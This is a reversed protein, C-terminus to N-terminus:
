QAVEQKKLINLKLLKRVGGGIGCSSCKFLSNNMNFLIKGSCSPCATINHKEAIKKINLCKGWGKPKFTEQIEPSKLGYKERAVKIVEKKESESLCSRGIESCSKIGEDMAIAEWIGGGTHSHYCFYSNTEPYVKFNKGTECGCQPCTELSSSFISTISIDKIDDGEWDEKMPKPKEKEEPIEAKKNYVASHENFYPEKDVSLFCARSLDKNAEDTEEINYYQSISEWYQKYEENSKVPPIKVIMKIGKGSPSIFLLHSFMNESLRKKLGTLDKVDDFDFCAYGSSQKLAKISRKEFTGGFTVYSLRRKLRDKTEKDPANRISEILPSDQKILELFDKLTIEKKPIVNTIGNEFYSFKKIEHFPYQVKCDQCLLYGPYDVVFNVERDCKDCKETM